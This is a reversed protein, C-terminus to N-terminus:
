SPFEGLHALTVHLFKLPPFLRTKCTGFYVYLVIVWCNGLVLKEGGVPAEQLYSGFSISYHLQWGESLEGSVFLVCSVNLEPISYDDCQVFSGSNVVNLLKLALSLIFMEKYAKWIKGVTKEWLKM